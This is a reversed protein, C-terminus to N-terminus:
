VVLFVISFIYPRSLVARAFGVAYREHLPLAPPSAQQLAAGCVHCSNEGAGILAGCNRCVSPRGAYNPNSDPM